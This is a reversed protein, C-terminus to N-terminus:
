LLEPNGNKGVRALYVTGDGDRMWYYEKGFLFTLFEVRQSHWKTGDKLRVPRMKNMDAFQALMKERQNKEEYEVAVRMQEAFDKDFSAWADWNTYQSRSNFSDNAWERSM